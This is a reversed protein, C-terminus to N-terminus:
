AEVKLPEASHGLSKGHNRADNEQAFCQGDATVWVEPLGHRKCAARGVAHLAGAGGDNDPQAKPKPQKKGKSGNKVTSNDPAPAQVPEELTEVGSATVAAVTAPNEAVAEAATNNKTENSM